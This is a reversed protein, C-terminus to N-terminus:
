CFSGTFLIFDMWLVWSLLLLFFGSGLPQVSSRLSLFTFCPWGGFVTKWVDMHCPYGAAKGTTAPFPPDPPVTLLAPRLILFSGSPAM